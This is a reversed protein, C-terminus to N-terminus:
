FHFFCFSLFFNYDKKKKIPFIEWESFAKSVQKCGEERDRPTVHSYQSSSWVPTMQSTGKMIQPTERGEGWERLWQIWLIKTNIERFQKSQPSVVTESEHGIFRSRCSDALNEQPRPELWLSDNKRNNEYKGLCTLPRGAGATVGPASLAQM